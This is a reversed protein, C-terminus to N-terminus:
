THDEADEVIAFPLAMREVVLIATQVHQWAKPYFQLCVDETIGYIWHQIVTLASTATCDISMAILFATVISVRDVVHAGVAFEQVTM